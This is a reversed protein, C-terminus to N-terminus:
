TTCKIVIALYLDNCRDEVLELDIVWTATLLGLFLQWKMSHAM